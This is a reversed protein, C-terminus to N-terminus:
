IGLTQGLGQGFCRRNAIRLSYLCSQICRFIWLAQSTTITVTILLTLLNKKSITLLNIKIHLSLVLAFAEMECGESSRYISVAKICNWYWCRLCSTNKTQYCTSIPQIPSVQQLIQYSHLCMKELNQRTLKKEQPMKKECMTTQHFNRCGYM